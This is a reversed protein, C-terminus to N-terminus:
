LHMLTDQSSYIISIIFTVFLLSASPYMVCVSKNTFYAKNQRTKFYAIKARKTAKHATLWIGYDQIHQKSAM